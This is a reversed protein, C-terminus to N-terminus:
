SRTSSWASGCRGVALSFLLMQFLFFIPHTPTPPCLARSLFLSVLRPLSLLRWSAAHLFCDLVCPGLFSSQLVEAEILPGKKSLFRRNGAGEIAALKEADRVDQTVVDFAAGESFQISPPLRAQQGAGHVKELTRVQRQYEAEKSGDYYKGTVADYNHTM